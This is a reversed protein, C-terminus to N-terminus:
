VDAMIGRLVKLVDEAKGEVELEEIEFWQVSEIVQVPKRM